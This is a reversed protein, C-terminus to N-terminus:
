PALTVSASGGHVAGVAPLGPPSALFGTVRLRSVMVEFLRSDVEVPPCMTSLEALASAANSCDFGVRTAVSKGTGREHPPLHADLIYALPYLASQPSRRAAAFLMRGWEDRSVPELPYGMARIWDFMENTPANRPNVLHFASGLSEPRRSLTVIARSVFDVPTIEKVRDRVPYIGLDISAKILQCLLTETDWEGTQSHWTIEPLRYIAVPLGRDRATLLMREAVLKSLPYGGQPVGRDGPRDSERYKRPEGGDAHFVALTSVYHLPKVTGTLALRITERTGGVNAAKLTSYPYLLNVWAANHYIVDVEGALADFQPRSLGFRPLELDGPVPVVRTKYDRRWLSRAELPRRLRKMADKTREARVLCHVQVDTQELLDQLLYRGLFGTAGTLLIAKPEARPGSLETRPRLDPHLEAERKLDGVDVRAAVGEHLTRQVITALKSVTPAGFLDRISLPIRFARQVRDVLDVALLSHGGLHFFDEHVGVRDRGLVDAWIPVLVEEIDTSPVDLTEEAERDQRPPAPLAARDLKGNPTLPLEELIVFVSPVMYDPLKEQLFGRLAAVDLEVGVEPVVYCVLRLEDREERALVVAERVTPHGALVAEVEGPEIRFGRIKVQHDLRGLFELTGDARFRGLDGTRYVKCSADGTFPDDLFAEGTRGPDNLYGRGVGVGGVLIEGHVGAPVPNLLRDVVYIRTNAVPRGIPVSEAGEPLPERVLHHTVDDSCETPGYANVLPIEPYLEFWRNCLAVPLAEGTLMLWRLQHFAPRSDAMRELELLLVRLFSPVVEVVTIQEDVVRKIFDSASHITDDDFLCVGGGLLLTTLYQWVSIDFSPSATGAIIDDEALGLDGVKAYMHNLMGRHEVLAGKPTGTSGSTFICYALDTPAVMYPPAPAPAQVVTEEYYLPRTGAGLAGDATLRDLIPKLEVAALLVPAESARVIQAIREPPYGPDIPVYAAGAKWVALISTVLPIGRTQVLPVLRDRGAGASALVAALEDSRADLAGYSITTPGDRLAPAEPRTRAMERFLEPYTRTEPFPTQTRNWDSVLVRREAGSLMPLAMVPEDAADVLAYLLSGYHNLMRVITSHDFLETAYEAHVTIGGDSRNHLEFTLEYTAKSRLGSLERLTLGGLTTDSEVVYSQYTFLAQFLPSYNAGHDPAMERVIRNFPVDQHTFADLVQTKIRETLYTRVTPNDSLDCRLVLTNVFLGILPEFESRPRNFTPTGIVVENQNAWRALLAAYAGLYTMYPTLGMRGSFRVIREVEEPGITITALGGEHSAFRPRPRDLPLETLQPAGRLNDRWYALKGAMREPALERRQWDVYDSYRWELKPLPSAEGAIFATYLARLERFFLEVSWGDCVLHHITFCIVCQEPREYITLLRMLPGVSFDFPARLKDGAVRRLEEEREEEALGTLDVEDLPLDAERDIRFMPEDGSTIIRARLLDHRAMIEEGARRFADLDLTGIVRTALPVHFMPSGPELQELFWFGKQTESLPVDGDGGLGPRLDEQAGQAATGGLRARLLRRKEPSLRAIKAELAARRGDDM